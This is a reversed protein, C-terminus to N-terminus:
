NNSGQVCAEYAKEFTYNGSLIGGTKLPGQKGKSLNYATFPLLVSYDLALLVPLTVM